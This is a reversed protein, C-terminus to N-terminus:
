ELDISVEDARGTGPPVRASRGVVVGDRVIQFEIAAVPSDARAWRDTKGVVGDIWICPFERGAPGCLGVVRLRDGNKWGTGRM